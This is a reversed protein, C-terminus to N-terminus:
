FIILGKLVDEALILQRGVFLIKDHYQENYKKREERYNDFETAIKKKSTQLQYLNILIILIELRFISDGQVTGKLTHPPELSLFVGAEGEILGWTHGQKNRDSFFVLSVGKYVPHGSVCPRTKRYRTFFHRTWNVRACYRVNKCPVLFM